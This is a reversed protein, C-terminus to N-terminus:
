DPFIGPSPPCRPPNPPISPTLKRPFIYTHIFSPYNSLCAHVPKQDFKGRNRIEIATAIRIGSRVCLLSRMKYSPRSLPCRSSYISFCPHVLILLPPLLLHETVLALSGILHRRTPSHRPRPLCFFFLAMGLGRRMGIWDWGDGDWRMRDRWRGKGGRGGGGGGRL